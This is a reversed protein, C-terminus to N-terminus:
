PTFYICQDPNGAGVTHSTHVHLRIIHKPYNHKIDESDPTYEKTFFDSIGQKFGAPDSVECGIVLKSKGPYSSEKREERKVLRIYDMLNKTIAKSSRANGLIQIDTSQKRGKRKAKVNEEFEFKLSTGMNSILQYACQAFAKKDLNAKVDDIKSAKYDPMNKLENYNIEGSSYGPLDKIETLADLNENQAIKEDVQAKMTNEDLFLIFNCDYSDLTGSLNTRKVVNPGKYSVQYAALDFVFFLSILTILVKM